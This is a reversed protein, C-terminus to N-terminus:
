EKPRFYQWPGTAPKGAGLQEVALRYDPHGSMSESDYNRFDKAFRDLWYRSVEGEATKAIVTSGPQQTGTCVTRPGARYVIKRWLSGRSDHPAEHPDIDLGQHPDAAFAPALLLPPDAALAREMMWRLTINALGREKYGGGVDRHMGPFWVQEFAQPKGAKQAQTPENWLTPHYARRRDDISLAHYAYRVHPSLDHNHFRHKWFPLEFNRGAIPLGLSRVTDWVGIFRVARKEQHNEERHEPYAHRARFEAAKKLRENRDAIRYVSYADDIAVQPAQGGASGERTPIGCLEILAALSRVTYAGRSFGFLFIHDGPEYHQAVFTYGDKINRSIGKGTAKGLWDEETGVGADYKTVQRANDNLARRCLMVVNTNDGEPADDNGTGDSFFVINKAMGDGLVQFAFRFSVICPQQLFMATLRSM